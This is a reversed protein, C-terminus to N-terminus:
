HSHSHGEPVVGSSEALRVTTMGKVVVNDGAKLGSLIEVDVGDNAGLTVPVKQYCEEDLQTYVFYNGQQESVAALPVVIAQAKAAGQLYVEVPMGPMFAGDNNFTFYVPIYGPRASSAGTGAVKHGGLSAIDVAAGGYPARIKAGNIEAARNYYKQPLDARVTLQKTASITAIPTGAEVFQGTKVDLTTIVGARPASVRGFAAAPSYAAKAQNYAAVAANYQATSVIGHEHLPKVRDLEKKAAQLAVRAAANPDGGSMASSKVTAILRGQAVQSGETIGSAFTVIGSTPATAVSAGDTSEMIRGSVKIVNSFETPAVKRTAVGMQKAVAPEVVIEKGGAGTHEEKEGEHDHGEHEHDHEEGEHEHGGHEHHHHALEDKANSNCSTMVPCMMGLYASCILLPLINRKM